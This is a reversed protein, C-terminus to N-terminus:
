APRGMMYSKEPAVKFDNSLATRGLLMKFKMTSRNTLTLEIDKTVGGLAIPTSIVYRREKEGSSSTIVRKDLVPAECVVTKKEHDITDSLGFRVYPAGNNDYPEIFDTHIASTRAGTDVKVKIHEIGLAPLALWERWGIIVRKKNNTQKM